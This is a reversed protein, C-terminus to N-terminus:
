KRDKGELIIICNNYNYLTLLKEQIQAQIGTTYAVPGQLYLDTIQERVIFQAVEDAKVVGTQPPANKEIIVYHYNKAFIMIDLFCKKKM